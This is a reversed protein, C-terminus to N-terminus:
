AAGTTAAYNLVLTLGNPDALFIQTIGSRQVFRAEFKTSTNRLHKCM